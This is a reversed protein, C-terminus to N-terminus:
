QLRPLVDPSSALATTSWTSASSPNKAFYRGAIAAAAISGTANATTSSGTSTIAPRTSSIVAGSIGSKMASTPHPACPALRRWRRANARSDPNKASRNRPSDVSFSYPRACASAWDTTAALSASRWRVIDTSRM